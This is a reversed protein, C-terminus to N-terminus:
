QFTLNRKAQSDMIELGESWETPHRWFSIILGQDKRINIYYHPHIKVMGTVPNKYGPFM